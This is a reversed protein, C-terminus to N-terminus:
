QLFRKIVFDFKDTKFPIALSDRGMKRQGRMCIATMKINQM